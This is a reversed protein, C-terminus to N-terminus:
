IMLIAIIYVIFIKLSYKHHGSLELSNFSNLLNKDEVALELLNTRACINTSLSENTGYAYVLYEKYKTFNYGCCASNYCTFVNVYTNNMNTFNGKWLNTLNFKILFDMQRDTSNVVDTVIGSFVATSAILEEKVTSFPSCTCLLIYRILAFIIFTSFLKM